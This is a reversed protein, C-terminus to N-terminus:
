TKIRDQHYKARNMLPTLLERLSHDPYLIWPWERNMALRNSARAMVAGRIRKDLEGYRGSARAHIKWLLQRAKLRKQSRGLETAGRVNIWEGLLDRGIGTEGTLRDPNWWVRRMEERLQKEEEQDVRPLALRLTATVLAYGPPDVGIWARGVQDTVNDYIAGGLGHVFMDCLFWRIFLTNTLARPRVGMGRELFQDRWSGFDKPDLVLLEEGPEGGIILIERRRTLWLPRRSVGTKAVLWFPAENWGGEMKLDAMPQGPNTIGNKVRHSRLAENHLYAFRDIDRLVGSVFCYFSRTQSLVSQFVDPLDLGFVRQGKQRLNTNFQGLSITSTNEPARNATSLLDRGVAEIGLGGSLSRWVPNWDLGEGITEVGEWPGGGFGFGLKLGAKALYGKIGIEPFPLWMQRCLDADAVLNFAFGGVADALGRTAFYKAWVGPHCLEPQHGSAVWPSALLGPDLGLITLLEARAMARMEAWPQSIGALALQNKHVLGPLEQFGPLCLVAGDESPARFGSM